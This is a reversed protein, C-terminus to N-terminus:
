PTEHRVGRAECGLDSGADRLRGRNAGAPRGRHPRDVRRRTGDTALRGVIEGNDASIVHLYGELDGVVIRGDLLVPATLKRYLLKDQKWVSAGQSKDLAHVNSADDVVYVNKKDIALTRSTSLDRSWAM